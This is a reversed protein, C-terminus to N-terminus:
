HKINKGGKKEEKKPIFHELLPPTETGQKLHRKTVEKNVLHYLFM